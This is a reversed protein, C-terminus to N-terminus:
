RAGGAPGAVLAAQRGGHGAGVARDGTVDVVRRALEDLASETAFAVQGLGYGRFAGSPVTNTYVAYGDVKKNACRYLSLAEGCGHFLVGPGHNGYAGTNSVITLALATLTGDRREGAGVREIFGIIGSNFERHADGFANRHM